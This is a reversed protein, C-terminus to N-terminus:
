LVSEHAFRTRMTWLLTPGFVDDTDQGSTAQSEFGIPHRVQVHFQVSVQQANVDGFDLFANRVAAVAGDAGDGVFEQALAAVFGGGGIAAREQSRGMEKGFPYAFRRRM